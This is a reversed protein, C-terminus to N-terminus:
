RRPKAASTRTYTLILGPEDTVAFVHDADPSAFAQLYGKVVSEMRTWTKGDFKLVVGNEGGAFVAGRGTGGVAYLHASTGCDLTEWKQGNYHLVTPSSNGVAFINDADTGWIKYGIWGLTAEPKWASGDYHWVQGYTPHGPGGRGGTILYVNRSSTGWISSIEIPWKDGWAQHTWKSGDYHLLVVSDNLGGGAWIDNKGSGWISSIRRSVNDLLVRVKDGDFHLLYGQEHNPGGWYGGGIYINSPSTGWICTNFATPDQVKPTPIDVWGSRGRRIFAGQRGVVFVDNASAAWVAYPYHDTKEVTLSWISEVAVAPAPHMNRQGCAGAALVGTCTILM